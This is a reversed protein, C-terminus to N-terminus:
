GRNVATIALDIYRTIFFTSVVYGIHIPIRAMKTLGTFDIGILEAAVVGLSIIAFWVTVFPFAIVGDRLFLPIMYVVDHLFLGCALFTLIVAM